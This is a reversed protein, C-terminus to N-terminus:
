SGGSDEFHETTGALLRGDAMLQSLKQVDQETADLAADNCATMYHGQRKGSLFATQFNRSYPASAFRVLQAWPRDDPSSRDPSPVPHSPNPSLQLCIASVDSDDTTWPAYDVFHCFESIVREVPDRILTILHARSGPAVTTDIAASFEAVFAREREVVSVPCMGTPLAETFSAPILPARPLTHIELFAPNEKDDPYETTLIEHAHRTGTKPTRLFVARLGEPAAAMRPIARHITMNVATKPWFLVRRHTDRSYLTAIPVSTSPTTGATSCMVTGVILVHLLVMRRRVDGQM